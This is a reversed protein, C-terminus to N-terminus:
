GGAESMLSGGDLRGEARPGAMIWEDPPLHPFGRFNLLNAFKYRCDSLSRDCGAELRVRDGPALPARLEAWLALERLGERQSDSRVVTELGQAVGDLARLRGGTFWGPEFSELGESLLVGAGRELSSATLTLEVSYGEQSLDFGCAGDGLVAACRPHYVRGRPKNLAEALGRLEAQFAGGSRKIEGVTGRFQLVRAAPDAWNVLWARLEAGDLRGAAIDAETLSDHSLAGLAELNDVALGTSQALATASLGSAAEFCIGDFELPRDHETFGQVRGDSRALAWCRAVTAAGGALHAYLRAAAEGTM